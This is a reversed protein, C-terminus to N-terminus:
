AKKNRKIVHNYLLILCGLVVGSVSVVMAMRLDGLMLSDTRFSEIFFRGISYFIFYCATIDGFKVNKNRSILLLILFGCIDWISEYLFTPHRYAGDIYM